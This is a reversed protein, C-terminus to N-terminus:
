RRWTNLTGLSYGMCATWRSIARLELDLRREGVRGRELGLLGPAHGEDLLAQLVGPELGQHQADATTDVRQGAGQEGLARDVLQAFLRAIHMVAEDGYAQRVLHLMVLM